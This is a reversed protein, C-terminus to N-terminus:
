KIKFFDQDNIILTNDWELDYETIVSFDLTVEYVGPDTPLTDAHEGNVTVIPSLIVDFGGDPAVTSCIGNLTETDDSTRKGILKIEPPAKGKDTVNMSFRVTYEDILEANSIIAPATDTPNGDMGDNSQNNSEIDSASGPSELSPDGM